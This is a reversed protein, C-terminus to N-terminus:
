PDPTFNRRNRPASGDTTYYISAGSTATAITVSVSNTFSGGNPTITPTAVTSVVTPASVTLTFATSRTIGGGAANVTVSFNGTPTSGTTSISLVTSCTPTCSASSFSGTAGSPLGSVSFSIAQSSGSSLTASIKNSSSTGALVSVSGSNTLAFDFGTTKSFWASAESSPNANNKFAKVKLLADTSITIPGSYKKSSEGPSSGDTTYYLIAGATTDALSVSISGNFAAGNPTITPTSVTIKKSNTTTSSTSYSTPTSLNTATSTTSTITATTATSVTNSTTTTNSPQSQALLHLLTEAKFPSTLTVQGGSVTQGAMTQASVPDFWDSSFNQQAGSLDVTVSGGTSLYVLYEAGLKVLCYGTSCAVDTPTMAALNILQSYALSQAIAGHLSEAIGPTLSDLEKDIVNFGRIFRKWISQHGSSTDLLNSSPQVFLVKGGAAIPPNLDSRFFAIWDAPSNFVNDTTGAPADIGVPHQKTKTAQYSKLYNIIYSQWAYNGLPGDGSIEYLVNDLDNLTDVVKRVYAEQFSTIAPITLTFAEAGFGDGNTDGNIRNVNNERNLPNAYWPNDQGTNSQSELTQFLVVSVYIERQAAEIVRTRLQDFYDQNLRRLDFKTGGDLAQGRGTREYPLTLIPTKASVPTQEWAWLRTFNHKQQQLYDLYTVFDKTGLEIQQHPLYTGALYVPAGTSDIFYRPNTQSISLPGSSFAASVILLPVFFSVLLTTLYRVPNELLKTLPSQRSSLCDYM